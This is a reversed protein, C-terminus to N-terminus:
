AVEFKVTGTTVDATVLRVTMEEGLEVKGNVRAEVAPDELVVIGGTGDKGIEVVTGTFTQGVRTSLLLAELLDIIGREYKKARADSAAM